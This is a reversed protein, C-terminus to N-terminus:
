KLPQDPYVTVSSVENTNVQYPKKIKLSKLINSEGTMMEQVKAEPLGVVAEGDISILIDGKEVGFYFADSDNVVDTILYGNADQAVSFGLKKRQSETNTQEEENVTEQYDNKQYESNSEPVYKPPKEREEFTTTIILVALISWIIIILLNVFLGLYKNNGPV